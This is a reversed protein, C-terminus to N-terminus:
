TRACELSGGRAEFRWTDTASARRPMCAEERVKRARIAVVDDIISSAM